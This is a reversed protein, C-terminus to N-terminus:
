TSAKQNDIKELWPQGEDTLFKAGRALFCVVSTLGRRPTFKFRRRESKASEIEDHIEQAKQLLPLKSDRAQVEQKLKQFEAQAAM